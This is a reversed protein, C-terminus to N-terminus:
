FPLGPLFCAVSQLNSHAMMTNLAGGCDDNKCMRLDLTMSLHTVQTSAVGNALALLEVDGFGKCSFEIEKLQSNGLLLVPLLLTAVAGLEPKLTLKTLAGEGDERGQLKAVPIENFVRLSRSGLIAAAAAAQNGDVDVVLQNRRIDLEELTTNSAMCEALAVSSSSNSAACVVFGNGPETTEKTPATCDVREMGV